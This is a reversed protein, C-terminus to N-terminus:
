VKKFIYAATLTTGSQAQLSMGVLSGVETGLDDGVTVGAADASADSYLLDKDVINTATCTLYNCFGCIVIEIWDGSVGGADQAVGIPPLVNTCAVISYGDDGSFTVLDGRAITGACKYSRKETHPVANGPGQPISQGAM